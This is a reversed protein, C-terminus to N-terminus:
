FGFNNKVKRAVPFFLFSIFAGALVQGRAGSMLGMGIGFLGAAFQFPVVLRGVGGQTTLVSFVMILAGLEGLAGANAVETTSYQLMLRTGYFMTKPGFLIGLLALCGLVMLPLRLRRFDDLSTILLPAMIIYLLTYPFRDVTLLLGNELEPTWALSIWSLAMLLIVCKSVPNLAGALMAPNSTFRVLLTVAVIGAILYNFLTLYTIMVPFYGQLAQEIVPFCVILVFALWPRVIAMLFAGVVVALFIYGLAASM